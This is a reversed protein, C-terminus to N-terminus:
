TIGESVSTCLDLAAIAVLCVGLRDAEVSDYTRCGHVKSYSRVQWKLGKIETQWM